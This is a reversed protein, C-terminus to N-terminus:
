RTAAHMHIEPGIGLALLATHIASTGSSVAVAHATGCQAAFKAELEAGYRGLTLQGTELMEEIRDAIWRRDEPAFEIRAAPITSLAPERISM